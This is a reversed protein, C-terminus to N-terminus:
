PQKPPYVLTRGDVWAGGMFKDNWICTYEKGGNPYRDDYSMDDITDNMGPCLNDILPPTIYRNGDGFVELHSGLPLKHGGPTTFFKPAETATASVYHLVLKLTIEGQPVKRCIYRTQGLLPAEEPNNLDIPVDQPPEQTNPCPDVGLSNIRIEGSGDNVPEWGANPAVPIEYIPTLTPPAVLPVEVKPVPTVPAVPSNDARPVNKTPLKNPTPTETPKPTSTAEDAALVPQVGSFFGIIDATPIPVIGEEGPLFVKLQSDTLEGVPVTLDPVFANKGNTETINLEYFTDDILVAWEQKVQGDKAQFMFNYFNEGNADQVEMIQMATYQDSNDLQIVQVQQAVLGLDIFEPRVSYFIESQGFMNIPVIEGSPSYLQDITQPTQQDKGIVSCAAIAVALMAVQIETYGLEKRTMNAWDGAMVKASFARDFEWWDEVMKPIHIRKGILSIEM